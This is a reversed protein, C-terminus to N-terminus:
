SQTTPSIHGIIAAMTIIMMTKSTWSGPQHSSACQWLLFRVVNPCGKHTGWPWSTANKPLANMHSNGHRMSQTSEITAILQSATPSSLDSASPSPMLIEATIPVTQTDLTPTFYFLYKKHTIWNKVLLPSPQAGGLLFSVCYWCYKKYM